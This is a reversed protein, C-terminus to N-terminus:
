RNQLDNAIDTLLAELLFSIKSEQAIALRTIETCNSISLSSSMGALMASVIIPVWDKEKRNIAYRIAEILKKLMFAGSDDREELDEETNNIVELLVDFGKEEDDIGLLRCVEERTDKPVFIKAKSYTNMVGGKLIYTANIL